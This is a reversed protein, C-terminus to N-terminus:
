SVMRSVAHDFTSLGAEDTNQGIILFLLVKLVASFRPFPGVSMRGEPSFSFIFGTRQKGALTEKRGLRGFTRPSTTKRCPCRREVSTFFTRHSRSGQKRRPGDCLPCATSSM